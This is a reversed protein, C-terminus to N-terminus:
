DNPRSILGEITGKLAAPIKSFYNRLEQWDGRYVYCVFPVVSRLVAWILASVTSIAYAPTSLYKRRM